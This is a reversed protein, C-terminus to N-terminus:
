IRWCRTWASPPLMQLGDISLAAVYMGTCVGLAPGATEVIDGEQAKLAPLADGLAASVAEPLSKHGREMLARRAGHPTRYSGRYDAILDTGTVAEVAGAAFWACDWVGWTFRRRQAAKVYAHLQQQWDPRRTLVHGM